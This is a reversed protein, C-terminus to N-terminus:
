AIGLCGQADRARGFALCESLNGGGNHMDSWISGFEGAGYLHPIPNGSCGLIQGKENREPGGDTNLFWPCHRGRRADRATQQLNGERGRAPVVGM